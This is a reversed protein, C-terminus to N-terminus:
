GVRSPLFPSESILRSPGRELLTGAKDASILSGPVVALGVVEAFHVVVGPDSDHTVTTGGHAATDLEGSGARSATAEDDAPGPGGAAAPSSPPHHAPSPAETSGSDHRQRREQEEGEHCAPPSSSPAPAQITPSSADSERPPYWTVISLDNGASFM